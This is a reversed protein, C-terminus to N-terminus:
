DEEEMESLDDDVDDPLDDLGGGEVGLTTQNEGVGDLDDDTIDRFEETVGEPLDARDADDEQRIDEPRGEPNTM